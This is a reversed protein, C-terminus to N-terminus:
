RGSSVSGRWSKAASRDDLAVGYAGGAGLPHHHGDAGAVVYRFLLDLVPIMMLLVLLQGLEVGVNFSLLSTLM